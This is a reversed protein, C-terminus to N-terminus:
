SGALYEDGYLLDSEYPFRAVHIAKARQYVLKRLADINEKRV